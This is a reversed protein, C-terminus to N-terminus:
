KGKRRAGWADIIKWLLVAGLIAGGYWPGVKLLFDGAAQFFEGWGGTPM